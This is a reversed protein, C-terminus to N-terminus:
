KGCTSVAADDMLADKQDETIVGDKVFQNLVKAYASLYAGHNKWAGGIAPGACMVVQDPSCGDSNVATGFATATCRDRADPVGDGDTDVPVPTVTASLSTIYAVFGECFNPDCTADQVGIGVYMEPWPHNLYTAPDGPLTATTRDVLDVLVQYLNGNRTSQAGAIYEDRASSTINDLARAVVTAPNLDITDLIAGAASKSVLKFSGAPSVDQTSDYSYWFEFSGNPDLAYGIKALLGTPDIEFGQATGHVVVLDARAPSACVALVLATLGFCRITFRKM